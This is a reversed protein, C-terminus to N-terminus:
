SDLYDKLNRRRLMPTPILNLFIILITLDNDNLENDECCRTIFEETEQPTFIKFLIFKLIRQFTSFRRSMGFVCSSYFESTQEIRYHQMIKAANILIDFPSSEDKLVTIYKRLIPIESIYKEKLHPEKEFFESVSKHLTNLYRLRDETSPEPRVYNESSVSTEKLMPKTHVSPFDEESVPYIERRRLLEYLLKSQNEDLQYKIILGSIHEHTIIGKNVGRIVNIRTICNNIKNM